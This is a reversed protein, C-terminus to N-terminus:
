TQGAIGPADEIRESAALGCTESRAKYRPLISPCAYNLESSGSNAAGQVEHRPAIATYQNLDDGRGGTEAEFGWLLADWGRRAQWRPPADRRPEHPGLRGSFSAMTMIWANSATKSPIVQPRLDVSKRYFIEAKVNDGAQRYAVGANFISEFDDPKLEAAKAFERAAELNRDLDM